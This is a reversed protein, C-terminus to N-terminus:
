CAKIIRQSSCNRRISHDGSVKLDGFLAEYPLRRPKKNAGPEQSRSPLGLLELPTEPTMGKELTRSRTGRGGQPDDGPCGSIM